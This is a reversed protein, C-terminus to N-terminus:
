AYKQAIELKEFNSLPMGYGNGPRNPPNGHHDGVLVKVDEFFHTGTWHSYTSSFSVYCYRDHYKQIAAKLAQTPFVHSSTMPDTFRHRVFQRVWWVPRYGHWRFCLSDAVLLMGYRMGYFLVQYSMHKSIRKIKALPICM